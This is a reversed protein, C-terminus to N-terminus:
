SASKHTNNKLNLLMKELEMLKKEYIELQNEREKIKNELFVIRINEEKETKVKAKVRQLDMRDISSDLHNVLSAFIGEHEDIVKIILDVTSIKGEDSM